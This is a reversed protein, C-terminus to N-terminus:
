PQIQIIGFELCVNSNPKIRETYNWRSDSEAEETAKRVWHEKNIEQRIIELLRYAADKLHLKCLKQM